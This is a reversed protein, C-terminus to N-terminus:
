RTGAGVGTAEGPRGPESPSASPGPGLVQGLREPSVDFLLYSYGIHGVPEFNERLWRYREPDHIGVLNNAGVLVHGPRPEAPEIVLEIGPHARRFREIDHSRDEWDLNSDALYRYANVRGGILENFYSMYHPHSSLSSVVYWGLLAILAAKARVTTPGAFPRAAALVLCPMIPLLYRVGIQPKVFLSFFALWGLAPLWLLLGERARYDHTRGAVLGWALLVFLALPTKLLLMLPFAYWRGDHNLEGLVYNAGRGVTPDEQVVSSRDLAWLLARPLPVPLQVARLPSLAQSRWEFERAPRFSGEFGYVLNVLLLVVVAFLLVAGALRRRAHPRGASPREALALLGLVPFLLVSTLKSVIAGATASACGLFGARSPQRALRWSLWVAAATFFAAQVDSTVQKGHALFNPNFVFLALAALAGAPGFLRRGWAYVLGGLMLAFVITPARVLLRRVETKNVWVLRCNRELCSLANFALVPMRQGYPLAHPGDRIFRMGYHMNDMEDYRLQKHLSSLVLLVAMLILLTAAPLLDRHPLSGPRHWGVAM